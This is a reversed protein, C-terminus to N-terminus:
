LSESNMQAKTASGVIGDETLNHNKQWMKIYSVTASGLHGDVSLSVGFSRNLFRQLEMVADGSSGNKLNTTGFDYSYLSPNITNRSVDSPTNDYCTTSNGVSFLNGNACTSNMNNPTSSEIYGPAIVSSSQLTVTTGTLARGYIVASNDLAISNQGLVNGNVVSSNGLTTQGSVVWFVNRAQAGGSLMVKAPSNVTLNQGIQFIWVSDSYGNLTVDSSVSVSGNWKYVGPAITLGGINGGGLETTTPARNMANTYANQMDNVAKNLDTTTGGGYDATYVEGLSQGSYSFNSNTPVVLGLGSVYNSSSPSLGVNGIIRNLGSVSVSNKGLITFNSASGLDITNDAFVTLSGMFMLVLSLLAVSATNLKKM